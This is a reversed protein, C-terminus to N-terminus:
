TTACCVRGSRTATARAQVPGHPRHARGAAPHVTEFRRPNGFAEFMLRQGNAALMEDDAM